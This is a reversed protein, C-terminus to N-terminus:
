MPNMGCIIIQAEHTRVINSRMISRSYSSISPLCAGRGIVLRGNSDGGGGGGRVGLTDELGGAGGVIGSFDGSFGRRRPDLTRVRDIAM